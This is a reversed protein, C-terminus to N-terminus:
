RIFSLPRWFLNSVCTQACSRVPFGSVARREWTFSPVVFGWVFVVVVVVVPLCFM